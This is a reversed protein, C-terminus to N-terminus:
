GMEEGPLFTYQPGSLGSPSDEDSWVKSTSFRFTGVMASGFTHVDSATLFQMRTVGVRKFQPYALPEFREAGDGTYRVFLSDNNSVVYDARAQGYQEDTTRSSPFTVRDPPRGSVTSPLNPSPFLALLPAIVPSITVSQTTGLQPCATNTITTGGPGICGAGIANSVTSLGLRDKLGEYTAFFFLKDKKIPGGVSGGYQNRRFPPLRWNAVATKLDFFNRADLASNRLYEFLSGHLSNSGSKSVITMQSGMRMGYEASSSNTIVRWERIGEVGLTNSGVSAASADQNSNMPPGDLLYYNSRPPAGSASFWTGAGSLSKNNPRHEVVGPQLLTLEVYNRGNLPLDAVQRADVLGGLSGSTTNVLLAEGTVEVRQEIAGVQLSFNIVAEQGVTLTVGSRIETQFGTQGTRVEYTGVPLAVFRYSGDPGSPDTRVQGTETNRVTITADPVVAGTSDKVTGLITATPLQAFTASCGAVVLLLISFAFWTRRRLNTAM